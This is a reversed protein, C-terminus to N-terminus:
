PPHLINLHRRLRIHLHFSSQWRDHDFPSISSALQHRQRTKCTVPTFPFLKKQQLSISASFLFSLAGGQGQGQREASPGLKVSCYRTPTVSLAAKPSPWVLEMCAGDDMREDGSATEEDTGRKSQLETWREAIEKLRESMGAEGRREGHRVAVRERESGEGGPICLRNRKRMMM